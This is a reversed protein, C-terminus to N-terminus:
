DRAIETDPRLRNGAMRLLRSKIDALNRNHLGSRNLALFVDDLGNDPQVNDPQSLVIRARVTQPLEVLELLPTLPGQPLDRSVDLPLSTVTAGRVAAHVAALPADLDAAQAAKVLYTQLDDTMRTGRLHQWYSSRLWGDPDRTSFFLTHRLSDGFRATAATCIAAMLPAAAAYTTLDRRGPMLGSLDESSMLIPRPDDLDLTAFFAAAAARVNDLRRPKPNLCYRRTTETLELFDPRLCIRLHHSLLARNERLLTQVSTTGTKHFGPHIVLHTM